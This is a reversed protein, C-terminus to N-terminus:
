LFAHATLEGVSTAGLWQSDFLQRVLDSNDGLVFTVLLQLGARTNGFANLVSRLGERDLSSAFSSDVVVLWSLRRMDVSCLRYVLALIVRVQESHTLNESPLYYSRGPLAIEVEREGTRKFRCRYFTSAFFDDKLANWIVEEAVRFQAAVSRLAAGFTKDADGFFDEHLFLIPFRGLPWTPAVADNVTILLQRAEDPVRGASTPEACADENDLIDSAELRLSTESLRVKTLIDAEASGSEVFADGANSGLGFRDLFKALFPNGAFASIAQCLATKGTGNDGLLVTIRGLKLEAEEQFPGINSVRLHTIGDRVQSPGNSLRRYVWDEHQDKMRKLEDVTYRSTNDDIDKGHIQCTWIGNSVDARQEPTLDKDFRPGKTSAATIHAGVGVNTLGSMRDDSPGVTLRQCGQVSCMYGARGALKRLTESSFNDRDDDKDKTMGAGHLRTPRTALQACQAM